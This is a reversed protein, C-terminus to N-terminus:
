NCQEVTGYVDLEVTGYSTIEGTAVRKIVVHHGQVETEPTCEAISFWPRIDAVLIYIYIILARTKKRLSCQCCPECALPRTYVGGLKSCQCSCLRKHFQQIFIETYHRKEILLLILVIPVSSTHSDLQITKRRSAM